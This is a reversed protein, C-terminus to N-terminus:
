AALADAIARAQKTRRLLSNAVGFDETSEVTPRWLLMEEQEWINACFRLVAVLLLRQAAAPTFPVPATGLGAQATALSDRLGGMRGAAPYPALHRLLADALETSVTVTTATATAVMTPGTDAGSGSPDHPETMGFLGPARRTHPEM